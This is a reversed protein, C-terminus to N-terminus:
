RLAFKLICFTFDFNILVYIRSAFATLNAVDFYFVFSTFHFFGYKKVEVTRKDVRRGCDKVSKACRKTSV